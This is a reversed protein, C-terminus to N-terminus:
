RTQKQPRVKLALKRFAKKIEDDNATHEVELVEYHCRIAGAM